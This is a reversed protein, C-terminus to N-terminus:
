LVNKLTWPLGAVMLVVLGAESALFQNAMGQLDRFRRGVASEPVVGGGVENSVVVIRRGEAMRALDTVESLIREQQEDDSLTRHEWVLNALWNTMCDVLVTTGPNSERVVRTVALPEEITEWQPPREARHRVIRAQMEEDEARATALFM